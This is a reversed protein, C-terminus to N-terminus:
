PNRGGKRGFGIQTVDQIVNGLVAGSTLAVRDANFGVNGNGISGAGGLVTGLSGLAGNGGNGNIAGFLSTLMSIIGGNNMSGNLISGMGIAQLISQVIGQAKSNDKLLLMLIGLGILVGGMVEMGISGGAANTPTTSSTTSGPATGTSGPVAPATPLTGGHPGHNGPDTGHVTPLPVSGSHPMGGAFAISPAAILAVALITALSGERAMRMMTTLTM